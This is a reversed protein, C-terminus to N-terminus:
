LLSTYTLMEPFLEKHVNSFHKKSFKQTAAIKKIQNATERKTEHVVQKTGWKYLKLAITGCSLKELLTVVSKKCCLYHLIECPKEM